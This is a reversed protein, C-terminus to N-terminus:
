QFYDEVFRLKWKRRWPGLTSLFSLRIKSICLIGNISTWHVVSTKCSKGFCFNSKLKPLIFTRKWYYVTEIYKKFLNIDKFFSCYTGKIINCHLKCSVRRHLTGHPIHGTFFVCHIKNGNMFEEHDMWLNEHDMWLNENYVCLFNLM